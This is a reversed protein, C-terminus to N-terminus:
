FGSKFFSLLPVRDFFTMRFFWVGDRPLQLADSSSELAVLFHNWGQLGVLVYTTFDVSITNDLYVHEKVKKWSWNHKSDGALLLNEANSLSKWRSSLDGKCLGHPCVSGSQKGPDANPGERISRRVWLQAAAAPIRSLSSVWCDEPHSLQSGRTFGSCLITRLCSSHLCIASLRSGVCLM